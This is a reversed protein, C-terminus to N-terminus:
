AYKQQSAFVTFTANATKVITYSYLDICFANGNIPETGGAWKPVQTM